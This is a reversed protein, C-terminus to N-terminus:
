IPYLIWFVWIMIKIKLVSICDQIREIIDVNGSNIVHSKKFKNKNKFYKEFKEHM